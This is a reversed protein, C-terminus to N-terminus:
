LTRWINEGEKRTKHGPFLAFIYSPGQLFTKQSCILNKNEYNLIRVLFNNLPFNEYYKFKPIDLKQYNLRLFFCSTLFDKLTTWKYYFDILNQGFVIFNWLQWWTLRHLKFYSFWHQVFQSITGRSRRPLKIHLINCSQSLKWLEYLSWQFFSFLRM